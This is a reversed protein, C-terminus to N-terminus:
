PPRWQEIGKIRSAFGWYQDLKFGGIDRAHIYVCVVKVRPRFAAEEVKLIEPASPNKDRFATTSGLVASDIGDGGLFGLNRSFKM